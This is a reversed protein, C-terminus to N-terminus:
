SPLYRKHENKRERTSFSQAHKEKKYRREQMKKTKFEKKRVNENQTSAQEREYKCKVNFNVNDQTGM